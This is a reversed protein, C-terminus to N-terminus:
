RAATARGAFLRTAGGDTWLIGSHVPMPVGPDSLARLWMRPVAAFRSGILPALEALVSRNRSTSRVVWLGAVREAGSGSGVAAIKDDLGRIAAGVDLILNWVEIVAAEGREQRRLLVDISRPRDPYALV